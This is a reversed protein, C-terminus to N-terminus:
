VSAAENSAASCTENLGTKFAENRGTVVWDSGVRGGFGLVITEV